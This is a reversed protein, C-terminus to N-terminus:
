WWCSSRAWRGSSGSRRATGGRRKRKPGHPRGEPRRGAGAAGVRRLDRHRRAPDRPSTDARRRTGGSRRRHWPGSDAPDRPRRGEDTMPEPPAARRMHRHGTAPALRPISRVGTQAPALWPRSPLLAPEDDHHCPRGPARGRHPGDRGRTPARRASAGRLRTTWAPATCGWSPPGSGCPTTGTASRDLDALQQDGPGVGGQVLEPLQGGLGDEAMLRQTREDDRRYADASVGVLTTTRRRDHRRTQVAMAQLVLNMQREVMFLISNHGLNTNPGYLLYCNPFGPVADGPLGRAGDGWAEALTAGARAPSRSTPSSTPPPSAPASSSSTPLHARATPPSWPTPRSTASPSTSWRRRQAAHLAPYWDNSILIRKCGIPYDPVVPAEPLRDSVVGARIGARFLQRAARRGLQGQPVM